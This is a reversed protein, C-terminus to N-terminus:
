SWRLGFRLELITRERDKLIEKMKEGLLKIKIKIDVEEEINRENNELVEQLTVVNDDKDKGIPENLYVEAGLKKTARLHMLIENAIRVQQFVKGKEDRAGLFNIRINEGDSTISSVLLKIMNRKTNLDLTDFATFYTDLINLLLDSTEKDNIEDYNTNTLEKIQKELEKNTQKLKKIEDSINDLLSVDVYKIKDLLSNIDNENKNILARLTKIEQNNKDDKSFANSSLNKLAKYFKSTPMSLKKIEKMVLDDAELGNINACQCKQKKSKEKLECMYDFKRRGQSDVTQNKLKARMFSGCHSCRLIGSLLANSKAPKRYRKDSNMNLIEQVAVWDKGSVIGEHKGVAIIWDSVDKRMVQNKKKETKNYVMLGHIGDFEKEDAYIEVGLNQFYKLTDKDAITYVPNILINKLGWRTYNKDNKTKIDNQITYTELKTQSKLELMKDFLIKVIRIENDIPSLKFLKRKKGDVTIQEIQESKFGTPTIGGLWRGTKALELMNDRIREAITDRELQAFVSIMFMMARGSPTVSEISETASLFSVDFNDLEIVLNSFDSVNRSIRDLKYFAIAKIKKDRIDKLMKQFAPRNTNYGTFGEDEYVIIDNDLDVNNFTLEIKRKCAEIQNHTSEGKGTFKSKRSYIAIKRNDRIEKISKM